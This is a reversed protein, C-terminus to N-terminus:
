HVTAEYLWPLADAADQSVITLACLVYYSGLSCANNNIGSNILIDIITVCYKRLQIFNYQGLM